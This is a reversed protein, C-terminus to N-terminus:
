EVITERFLPQMPPIEWPDLQISGSPAHDIFEIFVDPRWTTFLGTEPCTFKFVGIVKDAVLGELFLDHHQGCFPCRVNRFLAVM